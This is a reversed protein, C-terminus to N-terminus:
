PSETYNRGRGGDREEKDIWEGKGGVEPQAGEYWSDGGGEWYTLVLIIEGSRGKTKRFRAGQTQTSSIPDTSLPLLCSNGGRDLKDGQDVKESGMKLYNLFEIGRPTAYTGKWHV